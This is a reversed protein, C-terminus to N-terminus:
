RMLQRQNRPSLGHWVIPTSIIVFLMFAIQSLLFPDAAARAVLEESAAYHATIAINHSVNSVILVITSLIGIKPRVFLLLAVLPDLVTLSSWYIASARNIGGYDWLLGHELLIRAHNLGGVLLCAAWIGRIDKSARM